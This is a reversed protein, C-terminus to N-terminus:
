EEREGRHRYVHIGCVTYHLIMYAGFLLFIDDTFGDKRLAIFVSLAIMPFVTWWRKKMLLFAAVLIAASVAILSLLDPDTLPTKWIFVVVFTLALTWYSPFAYFAFEALKDKM